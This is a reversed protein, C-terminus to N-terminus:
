RQRQVLMALLYNGAMPHTRISEWDEFAATTTNLLLQAESLSWREHNDYDATHREEQLEAFASAVRRVEEPIPQTTGQWDRWAAASFKMSTSKMAGHQFAREVGSRAEASGDWRGAADDVLLHFL